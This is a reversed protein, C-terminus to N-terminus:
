KLPLAHDGTFKYTLVARVTHIDPELDGKLLSRGDNNTVNFLTEKSLQSYRYEGKLFLNGTLRTELGAGVTWGDFDYDKSGTFTREGDSLSYSGTTYAQTYGVLGYVLTDPSTLFGVRGGVSWQDNVELEAHAVNFGEVNINADTSVNSWDYDIFAGIVLRSAPIQYDVGAQVTGFIGEGGFGNVDGSALGEAISLDFNHVAAGVGIGGGLYFGTWSRSVPAYAVPDDKYGRGLDAAM